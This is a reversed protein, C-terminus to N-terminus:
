SHTRFDRSMRKRYEGVRQAHPCQIAIMSPFLLRSGRGKGERGNRVVISSECRRM